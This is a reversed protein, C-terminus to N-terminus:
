TLRDIVRLGPIKQFDVDFTLVTADAELACAAIVLDPIHLINGQRDLTWALQATREWITASTAVCTMFSFGHEFRQRLSPARLGRTVEAIVVGCTIFETTAAHPELLRFPDAGERLSRIFFNSDPLVLSAM